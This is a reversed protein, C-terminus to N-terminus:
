SVILCSYIFCTIVFLGCVVIFWALKWCLWVVCFDIAGLYYFLWAVFYCGAFVFLLAFCIVFHVLVLWILDLMRLAFGFRCGFRRLFYVVMLCCFLMMWFLNLLEVFGICSFAGVSTFVDIWCLYCLCWYLLILGFCCVFGLGFCCVFCEWLLYCTM